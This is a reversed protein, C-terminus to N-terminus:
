LLLIKIPLNPPEATAGGLIMLEAVRRWTDGLLLIQETLELLEEQSLESM